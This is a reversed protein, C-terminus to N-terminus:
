TPLDLTDFRHDRWIRRSTEEPYPVTTPAAKYVRTTRTAPDYPPWGPDGTAFDLWETRMQHAVDLAEEAANPIAAPHSRVVDPDLTGLVLLADLAHSAGDESNFAWCLEYTWAHGKGAHQAEALHLSPMRMLWDAHVLEHLQAPTADPYGARYAHRGDRSPALWKLAFEAQEDTVEGRQNAGLLRYEDRTHGVLLDIGRAAGSALAPWPACPLVDGDVVPSFPTPTFTMPGWSDVLTPMKHVVIRTADVLARPPVDALEDVSAHAGLEAAIQASIAAALRTSFYTGPVSQAIARRFLGATSPMALLAAVSGAGASEGFVTVNDPDGGFAAVNDQVWRLAAVQDLIGRNDPAGAIHAFGEVGLRYNMSVVVAGSRALTAGDWHPNLSTDRQYSGGHIWVMVPLRASGLDPSWVNLTLWDDSEFARAAWAPTDGGRTTQPAPPGFDLADRVGEWRQAPVPARFRRSGVPPAAYPIGRFVAVADTWSGRVVGADTGVEQDIDVPM